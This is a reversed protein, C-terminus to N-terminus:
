GEEIVLDQLVDIGSGIYESNQQQEIWQVVEPLVDSSKKGLRVLADVASSRVISDEHQLCSLLASIVEQNNGKGSEVLAEAASVRVVSNEDQLCSLLATIVQNDGEGLEVLAEAASVRVVSNEDQLCSLLATIVQNDEKGLEVLAEVASYRVGYNEHQLCSLLATIVQNDGKGLKVLAEVASYRVGYNEHQLCSLLATIVQNDGKGLEVLAEVALLRVFSDEHQLCSLLATIVQNDGKGLEVLAKAASYRVFSDEHQLCSLLATIVQNDGKGLEVLAKAASYRVGYNEHQLCSLLATRVEKKEGLAAQYERLREKSISDGRAKLLQLAQAEFDTENLSCLIKFVQQKVRRGVLSSDSAELEVLKTLNEQYLGDDGKTKLDKPNEALCSGAFLLDRHLWCEYESNHKFITRIARAAKKPKQQAILLLLVERWHPNHLYNKIHELIIEFNDEDDARYNIEQACLYEQFTKHVFAYCDTGQENLLGTRERIFEIFREAEEQAQYLQIQKLKKIEKGLKEILEDKDILTGGEEDGTSGQCHVWYALIEMLRGLDDLKLYELKQENSLEKNQDWNTLLTEVAKEYLKHRQKPLHAQYRHILAIITLLLPNRALLKIPKNESLAKSLSEKRRQAEEKNQVRSDYWHNIFEEIKEDDFPQLQYHSFEETKFFDRRYGAPRSSIIASNQPFQHLFSNIRKVVQERKGSEPVEDLGDLLILARGDALWHEFFDQPLEGLSMIKEAFHRGYDLISLHPFRVLDRMRILIPLWDINTDLGLQQYQGTALMVAFYSMLTTKGSGPAGLLVVKKSQRSTIPLKELNLLQHASFTSGTQNRWLVRQRQEHLLQTQRNDLEPSRSDPDLTFDLPTQAEEVVDPMVFIEELKASKEVEQGPVAIGAFKLDNFWKTMQQSYDAKALQLRIYSDTKEIYTKVFAEIWPFIYDEQPQIRSNHEAVQKFKEVLFLVDPMGENKLPKQLEEQVGDRQFFDKLFRDIFDPESRFFLWQQPPLTQEREQAANMGAVLAKELDTPNIKSNTKKLLVPAVVQAVSAIFKAAAAVEM